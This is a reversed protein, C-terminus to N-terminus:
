DVPTRVSTSETAEAAVKYTGHFAGAARQARQEHPARKAARRAGRLGARSVRTLGAKVWTVPIVAPSPPAWGYIHCYHACFTPGLTNPPVWHSKIAKQLKGASLQNLFLMM